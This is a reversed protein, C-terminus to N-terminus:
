TRVKAKRPQTKPKGLDYALLALAAAELPTIDVNLDKGRGLVWSGAIGGSRKVVLRAALDMEPQRYHVVNGREIEDVLLAAAKKVDVFTRPALRPRPRARQLQEVAVLAVQQGSDYNIERGYKRSFALNAAPLWNVGHKHELLLLVARGDEDRWAAVISGCIQDPHPAFAFEFREPPTPLDAGSGGAAWKIPDLLGSTDGITGFLGLYELAFQERPLKRFNFEIRELTTLGGVGPHMQEILARVGAEPNEETPEWDALQEDTVTDPVTYRLRGASKDNLTDWLINGDRYKAATGAIILQADPRTDFSPLIASQLEVGLEPSAEGGEDILLMDYAGSRVADGDPSLASLISGNPFEIRESGNGKYLHFPRADEDPYRKKLPTLLDLRFREATKKQTTALTFGAYHDERLACRGLMIALLTTTKSSRRPEIVGNLLVGAALVDVVQLMQPQINDGFGLLTIGMLFEARAQETTVMESADLPTLGSDRFAIWTAEDLLPNNGVNPLSAGKLAKPPPQYSTKLSAEVEADDLHDLLSSEQHQQTTYSMTPRGM